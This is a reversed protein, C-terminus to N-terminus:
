KQLYKLFEQEGQEELQKFYNEKLQMFKTINKENLISRMEKKMKLRNEVKKIKSRGQIIWNNVVHWTCLLRRPKKESTMVQTWANYYKIDDETMLYEAEISTGLKEKLTSFFITQIAQDNRNSILFAVPFLMNKEDKVLVTTLDWNNRNRGHIGDICIIQKFDKIKKEMVGNM